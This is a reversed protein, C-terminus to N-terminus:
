RSLGEALKGDNEIHSPKYRRDNGHKPCYGPLEAKIRAVFSCACSKYEEIWFFAKMTGDGEAVGGCVPVSGSPVV